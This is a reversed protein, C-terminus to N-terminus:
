DRPAVSGAQEALFARVEPTFFSGEVRLGDRGLEHRLSRRLEEAFEAPIPGAPAALLASRCEPSLGAWWDAFPHGHEAVFEAHDGATWHDSLRHRVRLRRIEAWSSVQVAARADDFTASFTGDPNKTLELSREAM